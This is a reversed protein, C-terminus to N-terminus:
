YRAGSLQCRVDPVQELIASLEQRDSEPLPALPPRVPGANMGCLNMGEKIVLTTYGPRKKRMDFVPLAETEVVRAAEQPKREQLLDWVRHPTAPMFNILGSTFGKVGLAFYSPALIEGVGCLMEIRDGVAQFQRVFQKMDGHEDKFGVINAIGALRNLLPLSFNFAPTQFLVVGLRTASAVARYYEFLGEDNAQVFQPPLILIGDAGHEEAARALERAVPVAYGVGVVVPKRGRVEEVVAQGVSKREEPTLSYIEGNNGLPVVVDCHEALHAANQRLAHMNITLDDHFPTVGFGVVGKLSQKLEEPKRM